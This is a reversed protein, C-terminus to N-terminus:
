IYEGKPNLSKQSDPVGEKVFQMEGKWRVLLKVELIMSYERQVSQLKRTKSHNQM